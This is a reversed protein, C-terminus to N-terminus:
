DEREAPDRDGKTSDRGSELEARWTKKTEKREKAKGEERVLLGLWRFKRHTEKKFDCQNGCCLRM